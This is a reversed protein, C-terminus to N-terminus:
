KIKQIEAPAKNEQVAYRKLLKNEMQRYVQTSKMAPTKARAVFIFDYRKQTKERLLPDILRFAERIVRRARSRKVANGVKKGTVIGIRNVRRKSERAYCVFADTVVSDGKRFLFKFERDKKICVYRKAYENM